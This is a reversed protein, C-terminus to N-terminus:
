GFPLRAFSMYRGHRPGEARCALHLADVEFDWGPASTGPLPARAARPRAVTLHPTGAEPRPLGAEVCARAVREEADRWWAGGDADDVALYAVRKALDEAPFGRLEGLRLRGPRLGRLEGRLAHALCAGRAEDLPGLFAVTAHLDRADGRRWTPGAFALASWSGVEDAVSTTPWAGVFWNGGARPLPVGSSSESRM